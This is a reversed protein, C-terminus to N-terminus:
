SSGADHRGQKRGIYKTHSGRAIILEGVRITSHTYALMRGHRDCTSTIDLVDGERAPNLFSLQLDTSVGAEAGDTAALVAM